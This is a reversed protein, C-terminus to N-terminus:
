HRHAMELVSTMRHELASDWGNMGLVIAQEVDEETILSTLKCAM